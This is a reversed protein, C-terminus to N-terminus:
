RIIPLLCAQNLTMKPIFTFIHKPPSNPLQENANGWQLRYLTIQNARKCNWNCIKCSLIEKWCEELKEEYKTFTSKVKTTVRNRALFLTDGERKRWWISPSIRKQVLKKKYRAWERKTRNWARRLKQPIYPLIKPTEICSIHSHKQELSVFTEKFYLFAM